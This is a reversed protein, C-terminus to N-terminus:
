DRRILVSYHNQIGAGNLAGVNSLQHQHLNYQFLSDNQTYFLWGTNFDIYPQTTKINIATTTLTSDKYNWTIKDQWESGFVTRLSFPSFYIIEELDDREIFRKANVNFETRILENSDGHYIQYSNFADLVTTYIGSRITTSDTITYASENFAYLKRNGAILYMGASYNIQQTGEINLYIWNRKDLDHFVLVSDNGYMVGRDGAALVTIPKIDPRAKETFILDKLIGLRQDEKRIVFLEEQPSLALVEYENSEVVISSDEVVLM